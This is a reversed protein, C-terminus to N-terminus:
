TKYIKGCYSFFLSLSLSVREHPLVCSCSWLVHLRTGAQLFHKLVGTLQPDENVNLLHPFTKMM